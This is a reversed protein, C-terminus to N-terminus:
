ICWYRGDALVFEDTDTNYLLYCRVAKIGLSTGVTDLNDDYRNGSIQNYSTYHPHYCEAFEIDDPKKLFVIEFRTQEYEEPDEAEIRAAELVRLLVGLDSSNIHNADIEFRRPKYSDDQSQSDMHYKATIRTKGQTDDSLLSELIWLCTTDDAYKEYRTGQVIDVFRDFLPRYKYLFFEYDGSNADHEGFGNQFAQTAKGDYDNTEM